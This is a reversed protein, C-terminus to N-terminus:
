QILVIRRALRQGDVRLEYFYVGPPALAGSSSRRDWRVSQSGAPLSGQLLTRVLRGSVDYVRLTAEGARPLAFGISVASRSPNPYAPALWLAEDRGRPPVSVTAAWKLDWVDNRFGASGGGIYGGFAVMRDFVPDYIATHGARASPPTGEPALQTWEPSAAMSLAWTDNLEYPFSGNGGFVVMRDRVPDYIATHGARASPPTGTPALQTWAPSGELSLAWVENGEGGFVVMRDRVPDYIATHYTRASPPTGEPSLQTWEPNAALSLAWVDNSPIVVDNLADYRYGGFVVMRDRVPDYIATHGLRASPPTGAPTLQTWVPSGALSLAWVDNYHSAGGPAGGFVVMRDRVPDYIATHSCRASPPTWAPTPQTWGPSGALSLARVDDLQTSGDFGAFVVMRDRVPDYIASHYYRASPPTGAPALQTWEPSSALSLAWVDNLQTSGDWGGFVVMDDRVPDYIATHSYRASPPTGDPALETWAPSGTLSLAWVDNFYGGGYGGFVVMRDRVLDYIASHDYRRLPPTGTPTLQTWEPSAALSLAWVDNFPSSGGYGGFVVMRDRVPDYIATHGWRASPPTGAPTLQTWVPSGALSLAWVDNYFSAGNPSGGFVVMRDRVPDYIATHGARGSPPTGAPNLQTLTPSGALSLTWVDNRSGPGLGGFVVMRDRVPDYIASHYYRPPQPEQAWTGDVSFTHEPAAGRRPEAREGGAVGAHGDHAMSMMFERQWPPLARDTAAEALRQRMEPVLNPQSATSQPGKSGPSMDAEDTRIEGGNGAGIPVALSKNPSNPSGAGNTVALDPIGDRNFDGSAIFVASPGTVISIPSVLLPYTCQAAARSVVLALATTIAAARLSLPSGRGMTGRRRTAPLFRTRSPHKM